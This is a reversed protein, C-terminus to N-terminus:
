GKHNKKPRNKQQQSTALLHSNADFAASPRASQSTRAVVDVDQLILLSTPANHTYSNCLLAM